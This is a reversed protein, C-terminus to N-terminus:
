AVAEPRGFHELLTDPVIRATNLFLLLDADLRGIASVMDSAAERLLPPLPEAIGATEMLQVGLVNDVALAVIRTGIKVTVQRQSVASRGGFLHAIDVVLTPAGRIISLGRVFPPAGAIPEIRLVRMIEVVDALRLACLFSGARCLLWIAEGGHAGGDPEGISASLHM